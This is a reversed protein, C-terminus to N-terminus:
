QETMKEADLLGMLFGAMGLGGRSETTVVGCEQRCFFFVPEVLPPNRVGSMWGDVARRVDLYGSLFSGSPIKGMGEMFVPNDMLTQNGWAGRNGATAADWCLWVSTGRKMVHCEQFFHASPLRRGALKSLLSEVSVSDKLQLLLRSDFPAGPGAADLMLAIEGGLSQTLKELTVPDFMETMQEVGRVHRKMEPPFPQALRSALERWQKSGITASLYFVTNSSTAALSDCRVADAPAALSSLNGGDPLVMRATDHFGGNEIRGAVHISRFPIRSELLGRLGPQLVLLPKLQELFAAPNLFLLLDPPSSTQTEQYAPLRALTRSIRGQSVLFAKQLPEEGHSFLIFNGLEAFAVPYSRVPRWVRYRFSEYEGDDLKSTPFEVQALTEWERLAQLAERRRSGPDFGILWDVDMRPSVSFGTCAVFVEGRAAHFFKLFRRVALWVSQKEEMSKLRGERLQSFLKRAATKEFAARSAQINPFDVFLWTEAGLLQDARYVPSSALKWWCFVVALGLFMWGAIFFWRNGVARKRNNM